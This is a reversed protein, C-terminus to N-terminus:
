QKWVGQKVLWSEYREARDSWTVSRFPIRNDFGVSGVIAAECADVMGTVNREPYYFASNGFLRGVEGVSNTVVPRNAAAYHFAKTPCRARNHVTDHFPFLLATSADLYSAISTRPIKGEFAVFETVGREAAEKEYASRDPGEGCILISFDSRRQKLEVALDILENIQYIKSITGVYVLLNKGQFRAKIRNSLELDVVHEESSIAVPSYLIETDLEPRRAKVWSVLHESACTFGAARNLMQREVWKLYLRHGSGIKDIASLNEDFDHYLPASGVRRQYALLTRIGVGIIHIASWKRSAVFRHKRILETFAKSRPTYIADVLSGHKAFFARNEPYDPICACVSRGRRALEAALFYLKHQTANLDISSTGLLLLPSEQRPYEQITEM